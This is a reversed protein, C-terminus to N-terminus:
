SKNTRELALCFLKSRIGKGTKRTIVKHLKEGARSAVNSILNANASNRSILLIFCISMFFFKGKTEIM